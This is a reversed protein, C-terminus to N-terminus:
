LNPIELTKGRCDCIIFIKDLLQDNTQQTTKNLMEKVMDLFLKTVVDDKIQVILKTAAFIRTESCGKVRDIAIDTLDAL